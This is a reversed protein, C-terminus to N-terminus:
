RSSTNFQSFFDATINNRYVEKDLFERHAKQEAGLRLNEQAQQRELEKKLREERRELIVAARDADVRQKDWEENRLREEMELREKEQRQQEQRNRVDALQEPSMGKWRDTIVRHAGFASQAVAPNETLMDGYIHNSLETYNDDLQQQRKMAEQEDKERQQALNFNKTAMNIQRRCEEEATALECARQDLERAKMEYLLDAHKQNMDAANREKIQAKTWERMQEQQYKKRATFNLDEGDLKQIGSIGCRPDDDTLRAPRDKKLGDPDNLDFERRTEPVQFNKRFDNVAMNLNRIDQEQRKEMMVVVKDNKIADAAFAEARAAETEERVERDKRQQELAQVDVGIIREKANFIRSQRQKEMNRRREIAAAQKLDVPLDLKYM